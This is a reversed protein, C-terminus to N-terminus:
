YYCGSRVQLTCDRSGTILWYQGFAECVCVCSIVDSHQKTTQVVAGTDLNTVCLSSDWHGGSFLLPPKRAPICAFLQSSLHEDRVPRAQAQDPKMQEQAQAQTQQQMGLDSAPPAKKKNSTENPPTSSMAKASSERKKTNAKTSGRREGANSSSSASSKAGDASRSSMSSSGSCHKPTVSAWENSLYTSAEM